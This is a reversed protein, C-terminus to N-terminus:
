ASVIEDLRALVEDTLMPLVTLARMNREVQDPTSAGTLVSSVHPNRACWAIALDAVAVGLEDAVVMLKRVSENKREDTLRERLHLQEYGPRDARSGTPVGEVYKGTLLGGALPSWSTIGLGFDEVLDTYDQEVRSRSFLNYQPQEVVPKRLHHREAVEFAERIREAPWESTGWYLIKGAAILDTMAWVTEEVPTNPDARHCLFLDIYEVQLRQLCGDIAHQLYKRNLTCWMNPMEHLGKFIKTSLVYSHRPWRLDAIARGMLEEALGDGYAEANDFYNVGADRAVALCEKALGLDAGGEFNVWAGFSLASVQLGCRGLQRYEMAM